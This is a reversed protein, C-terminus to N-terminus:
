KVNEAIVEAIIELGRVIESLEMSPLAKERDKVQETLYPVHVFGGIMHPYETEALHLLTYMVYNCVFTGAHYSISSSIGGENLRKTIEVIPLTSFYAEKGGDEIISHKPANGENDAIGANMVNIGVMEPTISARGGAQGVCVVADPMNEAIAKKLIEGSKGFVTPLEIKIIEAGNINDPLLKVAETAPNVKEGGFADFGTFLIKM